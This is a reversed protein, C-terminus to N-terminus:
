QDNRFLGLKTFNSGFMKIAIEKLRVEQDYTVSVKVMLDSKDHKTIKAHLGANGQCFWVIVRFRLNLIYRKM